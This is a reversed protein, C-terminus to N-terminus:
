KIRKITYSVVDGQSDRVPRVSIETWATSEVTVTPAEVTVSPPSVNVVPSSGVNGEMKLSSLAKTLDAVSTSEALRRFGKEVAGVLESSGAKPAGVSEAIEALSADIGKLLEVVEQAADAEAVRSAAGNLKSLLTAIESNIETAKM